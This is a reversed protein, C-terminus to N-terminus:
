SPQIGPRPAHDPLRIRSDWPCLCFTSNAKCHGRTAGYADVAVCIPVSPPMWQRYGPHPAQTPRPVRPPWAVRLWRLTRSLVEHFIAVRVCYEFAHARWGSARLARFLYRTPRRTERSRSGHRGLNTGTQRPVLSSACTHTAISHVLCLHRRSAAWSIRRLDSAYDAPATPERLLAFATHGLPHAQATRSGRCGCAFTYEDRRADSRLM